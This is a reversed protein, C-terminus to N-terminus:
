SMDTVGLGEEGFELEWFDDDGVRHGCSEMTVLLGMMGEAERVERGEQGQGM